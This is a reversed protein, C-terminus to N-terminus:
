MSLADMNVSVTTHGGATVAFAFGTSVDSAPTFPGVTKNTVTVTTTGSTTFSNSSNLLAVATALATGITGASAGSSFAIPAATRGAVMPDTGIGDVNMWVYFLNSDGEDSLLFYKNNLNSAVGPTSPASFTFGTAATGDAAATVSGFAVSHIVVAANSGTATFDATLANLAARIATALANATDGGTYTVHIATKGAPAPDVGTGNDLWLYFNKQAKTSTNVSSLTFYKSNLQSAAGAVTGSFSFSGNGSDDANHRAPAVTSGYLTETITVTGDGNDMSTYGLIGSLAAAIVAGNTVASDGTTISAKIKTGAAVYAAGTPVTGAGDIDLWVAAKAGSPASIVIYDAQTASATDPVHITTAAFAGNDAVTTVTQVQKAGTDAIPSITQAGTSTPTWVARVWRYVLQSLTLLASAGATITATQSPIDTWNTPTFNPATTTALDNSAQLKFTGTAQTDGFVAQFSAAILQNCDVKGGTITQSDSGSLVSTNVYRM